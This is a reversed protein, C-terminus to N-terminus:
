VPSGGRERACLWDCLGVSSPECGAKEIEQLIRKGTMIARDRRYIQYDPRASEPTLNVTALNAGARLARAYGGEGALNMASVAPIIRRPFLLRLGAVANLTTELSAAPHKPFRTDEGPIFPSVSCGVLPLAELLGITEKLIENTQGPLGLIFGSSVKWGSAALHRIAALREELTGPAAVDRYHAANGTEVKLVYYDAGAERLTAYDEHRLTGLCVSLGLRSGKLRHLLPVAIERVAIPDEGAQLNLDTLCEPLGAMLEEYIDDVSLRYRNLGRNDRRMACYGCNERCFNAIEVVGRVFVKNGFLANRCEEAQRRFAEQEHGSLNLSHSLSEAHFVNGM